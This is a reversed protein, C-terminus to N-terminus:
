LLNPDEKTLVVYYVLQAEDWEEVRVGELMGSSVAWEDTGLERDSFCGEIRPRLLMRRYETM